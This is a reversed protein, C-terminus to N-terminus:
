EGKGPMVKAAQVASMKAIWGPAPQVKRVTRLEDSSYGPVRINYTRELVLQIDRIELVKSGREKSNRCAAHLVNDVFSDAMNLVSEEVEPTLLNSDSSGESPAGCVQRVLEDLKKKSLVHDGEADHSYAPVKAMAPQNMVGGLIGGGQSITPRGAAVGGGLTVGQPVATSREPLAKQIPMKSQLSTAPQQQSQSPHAHSHGQSQQQQLPQAATNAGATNPTSTGPTPTGTAQQQQQQQQAAAAAAAAQQQQSQQQQAVQQQQQQQQQQQTALATNAPQAAARQNALSMAASHSLARSPGGPAQANANQPTGVRAAGQAPTQVQANALATNVPAPQQPEQKITAGGQAAAAGQALRAQQQQQQQQQPTPTNTAPSQQQGAIQQQNRAAEVAANVSATVNQNQQTPTAAGNAKNQAAGANANQNLGDQQKRVTEIWKQGNSHLELQKERHERYQRLEEDKMPNGAQARENFIKDMAAVKSKAADMTMLARGYRVKLDEVWRAADAPSKESLHHPAKFTMKNVFAMFREPVKAQTLAATISPKEGATTQGATATGGNAVGAPKETAATAQQAPKPQAATQQQQSAAQGQPRQAAVQQGQQQQAQVRRSQIKSILMRSFEIIKSRAAMHEPSNPPSSNMRAWLGSVGQEYKAKEEDSLLPLNKIQSPQYMPQPRSQPQGAQGVQGGANNM